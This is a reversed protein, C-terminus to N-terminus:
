LLMSASSLKDASPQNTPHCHPPPLVARLTTVFLTTWTPSTWLLGRNLVLELLEQPVLSPYPLAQPNVSFFRSLNNRSLVDASNNSVGAIHQACLSVDHVACFFFLARLLRM